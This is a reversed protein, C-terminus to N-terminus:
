KYETGGKRTLYETGVFKLVVRGLVPDEREFVPKVVVGERIQKVNLRLALDSLGNSMASIKEADFQGIYLVPVFLGPLHADVFDRAQDFDLYKKTTSDMVDFVVLRPKSVGYTLDQIKPGYIEGYVIFGKPIRNKIERGMQQYLNYKLVRDYWSSKKQLGLPMEVRRSGCTYVWPDYVGFLKKLRDLLSLRSKMVWGARFNTGHIKEEVAVLEDPSIVATFNKWHQIDTYVPFDKSNYPRDRKPKPGSLQYEPEPPEYKAIGLEDAVNEGLEVQYRSNPEPLHEYANEDIYRPSHTGFISLPLILGESIEKRLKVTRTRRDGKLYEIQQDQIIADPLLCDPPVFIVRDGVAHEGIKVLSQWGFDKFKAIELTDANPHKTLSEIEVVPVILSSM